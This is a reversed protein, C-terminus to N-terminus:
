AALYIKRVKEYFERLENPDVKMMKPLVYFNRNLIMEEIEEETKQTESISNYFDRIKGIEIELASMFMITAMEFVPLYDFQNGEADDIAGIWAADKLNAFVNGEVNGQRTVLFTHDKRLGEALQGQIKQMLAGASGSGEEVILNPFMPKGDDGTMEQLKRVAKRLPMIQAEQRKGIDSDFALLFMEDPHLELMRRLNSAFFDARALLEKTEQEEDGM